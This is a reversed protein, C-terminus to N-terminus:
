RKFLRGFLGGKSTSPSGRRDSLAAIKGFNNKFTADDPALEIARTMADLAGDIDNMRTALLLGLRNWVGANRPNAAAAAKLLIVARAVDGATEASVAQAHLRADDATKHESVFANWDDLIQRYRPDDPAADHAMRAVAYARAVAGNKLDRLCQAHMAAARSRGADDVILGMTRAPSALVAPMPMSVRAPGPTATRPLDLFPAPALPPAASALAAAVEPKLPATVVDHVSAAKGVRHVLKKDVLLALAIRLDADGLGMRKQIRAVPRVGDIQMLVFQEFSSLPLNSVDVDTRKLVADKEIMRAVDAGVYVQVPIIDRLGDTTPATLFDHNAGAEVSRHANLELADGFDVPEGAPVSLADSGVWLSEVIDGADGLILADTSSRLLESLDDLDADTNENLFSHKRQAREDTVVKPKPVRLTPVEPEAHPDASPDTERSAGDTTALELKPIALTADAFPFPDDDDDGELAGRTHEGLFSLDVVNDCTPCIVRGAEVM